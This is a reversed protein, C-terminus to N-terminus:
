PVVPAAKGMNLQDLVDLEGLVKDIARRFPDTRWAQWQNAFLAFM